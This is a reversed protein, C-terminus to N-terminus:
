FTGGTADVGAAGGSPLRVGASAGSISASFSNLCGAGARSKQVSSINPLHVRFSVGKLPWHGAHGLDLVCTRSALSDSNDYVVAMPFDARANMDVEILIGTCTVVRDKQALGPYSGTVLCMAAGTAALMWSRMTRDRGGDQKRWEQAFAFHNEGLLLIDNAEDHHTAVFSFDDVVCEDIIFALRCHHMGRSVLSFDDGTAVKWRWFRKPRSDDLAMIDITADEGKMFSTRPKLPLRKPESWFGPGVGGSHSSYDLRISLNNSGRVFSIKAKWLEHKPPDLFLCTHEHDIYQAHVADDLKTQLADARNKEGYYLAVPARVLQVAFIFILTLVFAAAAAALTGLVTNQSFTLTGEGYRRNILWLIFGLLPVGVLWQWANAASICGHMAQKIGQWWFSIFRRM